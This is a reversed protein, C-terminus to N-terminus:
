RNSREIYRIKRKVERSSYGKITKGVGFDDILAERQRNTLAAAYLMDLTQLGKYNTVTEGGIKGSLNLYQTYLTIYQTETMGTEACTKLAKETWGDAKYKSVLEKAATNALEYARKIM